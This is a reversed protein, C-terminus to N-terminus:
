INLNEKIFKLSTKRRANIFALTDTYNIDVPILEEGIKKLRGKLNVDELLNLSRGDEGDNLSITYFNKNFIISFVTGHFSNTVVYDANYIYSLFEIPDVNELRGEPTKRTIRAGIEILRYGLRDAMKRAMEVTKDRERLPYVLVYNDIVPRKQLNLNEIWDQADLLLTPDLVVTRSLNKLLALKADLSKERLGIAKFTLIQNKHKSVNSEDKGASAAYAIKVNDFGDGYFIGDGNTINDNWIQDSGYIIADYKNLELHNDKTYPTSLNLKTNIFRNFSSYRKWYKAGWLLSIVINKISRVPHKFMIRPLGNWYGEYVTRCYYDIVEVETGLSKLTQQLAFCQLVAGYNHARHFTVIGVKM